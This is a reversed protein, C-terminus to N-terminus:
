FFKLSSHIFLLEKLKRMSRTRQKKGMQRSQNMETLRLKSSYIKKLPLMIMKIKMQFPLEPWPRRSMSSISLEKTLPAHLGTRTKILLSLIFKQKTAEVGWKRCLLATKPPSFELLPARIVQLQWYREQSIWHWALSPAKIHQSWLPTIEKM